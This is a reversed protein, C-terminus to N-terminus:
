EERNLKEKENEELLSSIYTLEQVMEDIQEKNLFIESDLKRFGIHTLNAHIAGKPVIATIQHGGIVKQETIHM